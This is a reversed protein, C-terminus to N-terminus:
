LRKKIEKEIIDVIDTMLQGLEILEEQSITEVITSSKAISNITRGIHTLQEGIEIYEPFTVTWNKIDMPFLKKRAFVSFNKMGDNSMMELLRKNEEETLFFQKLINRFRNKM